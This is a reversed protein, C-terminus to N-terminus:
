AASRHPLRGRGPVGGGTGAPPERPARGLRREGQGVEAAARQADYVVFSGRREAKAWALAREAAGLLAAPDTSAVPQEVVGVSARIPLNYGNNIPFTRAIAALAADAAKTM